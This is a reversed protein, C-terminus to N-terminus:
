TRNTGKEVTGTGSHVSIKQAEARIKEIEAARGLLGTNKSLSGGTLSGGANVVQGDLTVIRFRYNYKKAIETACDIDEAIVIRGLLSNLIGKYCDDCSCLESAIGIFGRCNELGNETLERGKITSMPLFTARGGDHKKLFAIARKADTDDTTVINQMAAGLAIEVATSYESPVRIVRSVPGHIGTLTGHKAERMVVKVSHTFGELNRELEELMKAKRFLQESDLSLRDAQRKLEDCSQNKNKLILENGNVRNTLYTIKDLCDDRMKNYDAIINKLTEIQSTRAKVTNEVVDMRGTLEDISSSSTMYNVKADSSKKRLDDLLASIEDLQESSNNEGSKLSSLESTYRELESKKESLKRNNEDITKRKEEIERNIQEGSAQM